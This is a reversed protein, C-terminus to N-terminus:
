PDAALESKLRQLIFYYVNRSTPVGLSREPVDPVVWFNPVTPLDAKVIQRGWISAIIVLMKKMTVTAYLKSDINLIYKTNIM